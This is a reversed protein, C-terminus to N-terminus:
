QKPALIEALKKKAIEGVLPFISELGSGAAPPPPPPSPTAPVPEPPAPSEASAAGPLIQALLSKANATGILRVLLAGVVVAGGALVLPSTLFETLRQALASNADTTASTESKASTQNPHESNM